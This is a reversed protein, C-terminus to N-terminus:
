LGLKEKLEQWPIRRGSEALAERASEVDYRDELAELLELDTTSILAAVSRGHRELVIRDGGVSVENLLDSLRARAESSPVRNHDTM